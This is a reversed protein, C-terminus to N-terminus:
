AGQSHAKRTRGAWAAARTRKSSRSERMNAGCVRNIEQQLRKKEAATALAREENNMITPLPAPEVYQRNPGQGCDREWQVGGAAATAVKGKQGWVLHFPSVCMKSTCPSNLHAMGLRGWTYDIHCAAGAYEVLPPRVMATLRGPSQQPETHRPPMPQDDRLPPGRALWAVVRHLYIYVGLGNHDKGIHMRAYGGSKYSPLVHMCLHRGNQNLRGRLFLEWKPPNDPHKGKVRLALWLREFLRVVLSGVTTGGPDARDLLWPCPQVLVDPRLEPPLCRYFPLHAADDKSLGHWLIQCAVLQPVNCTEAIFKDNNLAFAAAWESMVAFVCAGWCICHVSPRLTM